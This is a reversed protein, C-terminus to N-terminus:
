LDNAITKFWAKNKDLGGRSDSDKAMGATITIITM